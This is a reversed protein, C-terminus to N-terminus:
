NLTNMTSALGELIKRSRCSTAEMITMDSSETNNQSRPRVRSESEERNAKTPRDLVVAPPVDLIMQGVILSFGPAVSEVPRGRPTQTSTPRM